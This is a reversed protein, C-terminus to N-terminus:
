EVTFETWEIHNYQMVDDAKKMGLKEYFGVANENVCTYVIIDDKGGAAELAAKKNGSMGLAYALAYGAM